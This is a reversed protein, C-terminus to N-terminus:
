RPSQLESTHEESEVSKEVLRVRTRSERIQRCHEWQEESIIPEFNGKVYMYTSEDRNIITKQDLFNNRQSKKYGMVGKYITNRLVRMIKTTDWSVKGNGAKRGARILENRIAQMGLGSEYLNYIMRVTEAQDENIVYTSGVRDYGLVNGNGYLVGNARSIEQGAKVRESMKRSEEQAVMARITLNMEGENDM